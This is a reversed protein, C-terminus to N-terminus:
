NTVTILSVLLSVQVLTINLVNIARKDNIENVVGVKTPAILVAPLSTRRRSHVLREKRFQYNISVKAERAINKLVCIINFKIKIM